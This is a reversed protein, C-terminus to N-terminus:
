QRVPRAASGKVRERVSVSAQAPLAAWRPTAAALTVAEPVPAQAAVGSLVPARVAVSVRVSVQSAAETPARASLAV